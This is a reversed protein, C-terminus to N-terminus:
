MTANFMELQILTDKIDVMLILCYGCGSYAHYMWDHVVYEFECRPCVLTKIVM